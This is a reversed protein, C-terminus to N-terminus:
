NKEAMSSIMYRLCTTNMGPRKRLSVCEYTDPTDPTDPTEKRALLLFQQVSHM